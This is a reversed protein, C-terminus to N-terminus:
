LSFKSQVTDQSQPTVRGLDEGLGEEQFATSHSFTKEAGAKKYEFKITRKGGVSRRKRGGQKHGSKKRYNGGKYKVRPAYNYIAWRRYCM